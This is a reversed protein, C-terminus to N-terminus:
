WQNEPRMLKRTENEDAGFGGILNCLKFLNRGNTGDKQRDFATTSQKAIRLFAHTDNSTLRIRKVKQWEKLKELHQVVIAVPRVVSELM